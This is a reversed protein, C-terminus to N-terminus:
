SGLSRASRLLAVLQHQSHTATKSFIRALYTRGSAISLGCDRAADALSVGSALRLALRAEAPTLDFLGILTGIPFHGVKPDVKTAALVIDGKSFIDRASRRVPLLHVVYPADDSTQTSVPISRVALNHGAREAELADQLLRDAAPNAISLRGFAGLRFIHPMEELLSNVAITQGGATLVAAPLGLSQLTATMAAARELRLRAGILGARMLHPRCANLATLEESSPRDNTLWREVTVLLIEGTPMMEFSGIEGGIGLPMVKETRVTNAAIIEPPFLDADFIFSPPPQLARMMALLSGRSWENRATIDDWVPRILDTAFFKVDDSFVAITGAASNSVNSLQQLVDPWLDPVFAAEYIQDRLADM